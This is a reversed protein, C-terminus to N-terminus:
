AALPLGVYNEALASAGATSGTVYELEAIQVRRSFDDAHDLRHFLHTMWASFRQVKWIRRLATDTYAELGGDDGTAYWREIGRALVTVDAVASNLGKAGTPPVIHAADGVLFLRGAQMPEAVFSRMPTVGKQTIRGTRLTFGNHALRMALEDWIRDDSWADAVEDAACQLYMRQVMPSRMSLLAFGRDHNAYILEHSSPPADALIGLWGFPYAHDYVRLSGPSFSPRCTGHFGDCGAILDCDLVNAKGGQTFRVSPSGQAFGDVSVGSCDFLLRGHAELRARVLDRVIEHQGYVLVSRGTLAQFDIRHLAGGFLIGTGAHTLGERRMRAGVGAAEFADAVRSELLGARIRNEVHERSRQEIVVTDIGANSLIQSLLLGSPGAGVIAVQTKMRTRKGAAVSADLGDTFEYGAVVVAYGASLPGFKGREALAVMKRHLLLPDSRAMGRLGGTGRSNRQVRAVDDQAAVLPRVPQEVDLRLEGVRFCVPEVALIASADLRALRQMPHEHPHRDVLVHPDDGALRRGIERRIRDARAGRGVEGPEGAERDLRAEQALGPRPDAARLAARM